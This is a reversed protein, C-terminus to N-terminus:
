TLVYLRVHLIIHMSCASRCTAFPGSTRHCHVKGRSNALAMELLKNRQQLLERELTVSELKETVQIVVPQSCSVSPWCQLLAACSGCRSVEKLERGM